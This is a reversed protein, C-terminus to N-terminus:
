PARPARLAVFIMCTLFHQYGYATECAVLDNTAVVFLEALSDGLALVSGCDHVVQADLAVAAATDVHRVGVQNVFHQGVVSKIVATGHGRVPGTPYSPMRSPQPGNSEPEFGPPAVM